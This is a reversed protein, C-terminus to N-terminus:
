EHESKQRHENMMKRSNNRFTLDDAQLYRYYNETVLQWIPDRSEMVGQRQLADLKLFIDRAAARNGLGVAEVFYQRMLFYANEATERPHAQAWQTLLAAAEEAQLRGYMRGAKTTLANTREAIPLREDRLGSDWWAEIAINEESAVAPYAELLREAILRARQTWSFLPYGRLLSTYRADMERWLKLTGKPEEAAKDMMYSALLPSIMTAAETEGFVLTLTKEWGRFGAEAQEFSQWEARLSSNASLKVLSSASQLFKADKIPVPTVKRLFQQISERSISAHEALQAARSPSRPVKPDKATADKALAQAKRTLELWAPDNLWNLIQGDAALRSCALFVLITFCASKM